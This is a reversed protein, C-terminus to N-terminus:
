QDSTVSGIAAGAAAAAATSNSWTITVDAHKGGCSVTFGTTTDAAM